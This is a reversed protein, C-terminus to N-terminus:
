WEPTEGIVGYARHKTGHHFELHMRKSEEAQVKFAQGCIWGHESCSVEYFNGTITGASDSLVKRVTVEVM